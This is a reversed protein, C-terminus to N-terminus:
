GKKRWRRKISGPGKGTEELGGIETPPMSSLTTPEYVPIRDVKKLWFGSLMEEEGKVIITVHQPHKEAGTTAEATKAVRFPGKSGYRKILDAISVSYVDELAEDIEVLDGKEYEERQTM